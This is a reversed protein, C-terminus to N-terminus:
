SNQLSKVYKSKTWVNDGRPLKEEGWAQGYQQGAEKNRYYVLNMDKYSDQCMFWLKVEGEREPNSLM